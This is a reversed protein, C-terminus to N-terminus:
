SRLIKNVKDKNMGIIAAMKRISLNTKMKFDRIFAEPLDASKSGECDFGWSLRMERYLMKAEEEDLVEEKEEIDMFIDTSEERMYQYFLTKAIKMDESFLGLVTDTEVVNSFCDNEKIYVNYSSWRYDEPDKALGAKVPNRHIYRVLSLVYRDEEVAESRFRDQFLHGVRKHRKNFYYVYSVTIRKMIEAIDSEGENLLLHLHNDMLCFAHLAYGCAEKKSQLLNIFYQKDEDTYFINGKENGRLMIHYYGSESRVRKQRPMM